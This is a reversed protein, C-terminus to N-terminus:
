LAAGTPRIDLLLAPVEEPTVVFGVSSLQRLRNLNDATVPM